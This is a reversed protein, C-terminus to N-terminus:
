PDAVFLERLGEQCHSAGHHLKALHCVHTRRSKGGEDISWDRVLGMDVISIPANAAISCPDCVQHLAAMIRDDLIM